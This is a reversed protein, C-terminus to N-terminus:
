RSEGEGGQPATTRFYSQFVSPSFKADIESKSLRLMRTDGNELLNAIQAIERGAGGILVRGTHRRLSDDKPILGIQWGKSDGLFYVECVGFLGVPRGRLLNLYVDTLVTLEPRDNKAIRRERGDPQREILGIDDIILVRPKPQEYAISLGAKKSYRMTGTLEVPRKIIGMRRTEIFPIVATDAEALRNFVSRLAPPLKAPDLVRHSEAYVAAAETALPAQPANQANAASVLVLAPLLLLRKM